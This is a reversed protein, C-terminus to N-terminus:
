KSNMVKALSRAESSAHAPNTNWRQALMERCQNMYALAEDAETIADFEQARWKQNREWTHIVVKDDKPVALVRHNRGFSLARDKIIQDRRRQYKHQGDAYDLCAIMGYMVAFCIAYAAVPGGDKVAVSVSGAIALGVLWLGLLPRYKVLFEIPNLKALAPDYRNVSKM